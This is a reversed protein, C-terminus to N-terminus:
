ARGKEDQGKQDLVSGRKGSRWDTNIVGNNDTKFKWFHCRNLSMQIQLVKSNIMSVTLKPMESLPTDAQAALKEDRWKEM